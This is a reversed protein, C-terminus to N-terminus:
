SRTFTMKKRQTFAVLDDESMDLLNEMMRWEAEGHQKHLTELPQGVLAYLDGKVVWRGYQSLSEWIKKLDGKSAMVELPASFLEVVGPHSQIGEALASWGEGGIAGVVALGCIPSVEQSCGMATRFAKASRETQIVVLSASLSAMKAQQRSLRDALVSLEPDDLICRYGRSNFGLCKVEEVTQESTGFTGEVIELLQLRELPIFHPSDPHRPCGLRVSGSSLQHPLFPGTCIVDLLEMM